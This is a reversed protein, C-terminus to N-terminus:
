PSFPFTIISFNFTTTPMDISVSTINTFVVEVSNDASVRAQSIMLGQTLGSHPSVVVTNRAKQINPINFVHVYSTGGLISPLDAEDDYNNIATITSGNTGVKANGNVTLSHSVNSNPLIGISVSNPTIRTESNSNVSKIDKQLFVFSGSNYADQNEFVTNGAMNFGAKQVTSNFPYKQISFESQSIYGQTQLRLGVTNNRSIAELNYSVLNDLTNTTDDLVIRKYSVVSRNTSFEERFRYLSNGFTGSENLNILFESNLKKNNLFAKGLNDIGFWLGNNANTGTAGNTFQIESNVNGARNIQLEANPEVVNIGVKNATTNLANSSANNPLITFSQANLTSQVALLFIFLKTKM